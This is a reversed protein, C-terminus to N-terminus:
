DVSRYKKRNVILTLSTRENFYQIGIVGIVRIDNDLKLKVFQSFKYDSESIEESSERRGYVRCKYIVHSDSKVIKGINKSDLSNM